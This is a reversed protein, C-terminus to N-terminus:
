LELRSSKLPVYYAVWILRKNINQKLNNAQANKLLRKLFM